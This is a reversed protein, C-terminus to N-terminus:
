HIYHTVQKMYRFTTSNMFFVLEKCHLSVVNNISCTAYWDSALDLVNISAIFEQEKKWVICREISNTLRAGYPVFLRWETM